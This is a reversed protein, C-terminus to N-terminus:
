NTLETLLFLWVSGIESKYQRKKVETISGKKRAAKKKKKREKASAIKM